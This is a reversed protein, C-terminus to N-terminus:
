LSVALQQYFIIMGVGFFAVLYYILPLDFKTIPEKQFNPHDNSSKAIQIASWVLIGIGVWMLPIPTLSSIIMANQTSFLKVFSIFFFANTFIGALLSVIVLLPVLIVRDFFSRLSIM